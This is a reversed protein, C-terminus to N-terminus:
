GQMDSNSGQLNKQKIQLFREGIDKDIKWYMEKFINQLLMIQCM